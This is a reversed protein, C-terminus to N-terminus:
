LSCVSRISVVAQMPAAVAVRMAGDNSTKCCECAKVVPDGARFFDPWFMWVNVAWLWPLCAFGAIFLTSVFLLCPCLSGACFHCCLTLLSRHPTSSSWCRPAALPGLKDRKSLSRAKDRELPEGDITEVVLDMRGHTLKAATLKDAVADAVANLAM